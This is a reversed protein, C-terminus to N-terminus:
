ESLSKVKQLNIEYRKIKANLTTHKLNLLKAALKQNGGVRDLAQEILKIEFSKVEEDFDIGEEVRVPTSYAISKVENLLEATTERWYDIKKSLLNVQKNAQYPKSNSKMRQM